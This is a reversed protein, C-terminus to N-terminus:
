QEHQEVNKSPFADIQKGGDTGNLDEIGGYRLGLLNDNM